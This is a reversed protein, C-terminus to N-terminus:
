TNPDNQASRLPLKIQQRVVGEVTSRGMGDALARQFSADLDPGSVGTTGARNLKHCSGCKQVFAEKGAILNPEGEVIGGCASLGLALVAAGAAGVAKASSLPVGRM